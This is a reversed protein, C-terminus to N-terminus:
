EQWLEIINDTKGLINWGGNQNRLVTKGELLYSSFSFVPFIDKAQEPISFTGDANKIPILLQWIVPDDFRKDTNGLKRNLLVFTRKM